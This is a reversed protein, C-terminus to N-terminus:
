CYAPNAGLRALGLIESWRASRALTNVKYTSVLSLQTYFGNIIVSHAYRRKYTIWLGSSIISINLMGRVKRKKNEHDELLDLLSNRFAIMFGFGIFGNFM